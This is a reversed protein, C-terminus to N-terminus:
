KYLKGTRNDRLEIRNVLTFDYKRIIEKLLKIVETIREREINELAQGATPDPYHEHNLYKM